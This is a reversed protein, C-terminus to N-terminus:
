PLTYKGDCLSKTIKPSLDLLNEFSRPRYVNSSGSAMEELEKQPVASGVGVAFM